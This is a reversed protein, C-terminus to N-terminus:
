ATSSGISMTLISHSVLDIVKGVVAAIDGRSLPKVYLADRAEHHSQKDCFPRRYSRICCSM